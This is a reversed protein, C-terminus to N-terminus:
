TRHGCCVWGPFYCGVHAPCCARSLKEAQTALVALLQAVRWRTGVTDVAVVAAGAGTATTATVSGRMPLYKRLLETPNPPEHKWFSM